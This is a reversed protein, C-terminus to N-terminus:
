SKLGLVNGAPRHDCFLASESGGSSFCFCSLSSTRGAKHALCPSLVRGVRPNISLTNRMMGTLPNRKCKAEQCLDVGWRPADVASRRERYSSFALAAHSPLPPMPSLITEIHGRNLETPPFATTALRLGDLVPFLNFFWVRGRHRNRWFIPCRPMCGSNPTNCPM